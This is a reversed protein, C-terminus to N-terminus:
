WICHNIDFLMKVCLPIDEDDDTEHFSFLM